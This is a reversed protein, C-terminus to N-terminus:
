WVSHQEQLVANIGKAKRHLKPDLHDDPYVMLQALGHNDIQVDSPPLNNLLVITPRLLCQKGSPNININKLNLADGSFAEHVSSCNFIWIGVARPKLFEFIPTAKEIQKM